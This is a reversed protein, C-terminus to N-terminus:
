VSTLVSECLALAETKCGDIVSEPPLKTQFRITLKPVLPHGVDRSVYEVQGGRYMLEQMLNGVTHSETEAEIRYWNTDERLLPLKAWDAIRTKLIEVADRVLEKAPTVGISEVAFDFWNPRGMEDRSYSRQIYFTDFVKPNGGEAVFTDKDLQARTMDIHNKFTSVCVQSNGRPEIALNCRIHLRENPQIYMFLLPEGLDRDKLIVDKRPGAIVFDDSTIIRREKDPMFRLEIKTDRIVNTETARVNIPLMEVRHRIMEHTMQTTNELIQVNSVVVTPIDALITRRLANVFSVPVDKLEADLRYGNQTISVNEM